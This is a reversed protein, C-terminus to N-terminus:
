LYSKGWSLESVLKPKDLVIIGIDPDDATKKSEGIRLVADLIPWIAASEMNSWLGDANAGVAIRKGIMMLFYTRSGMLRVGPSIPVRSIFWPVAALFGLISLLLHAVAFFKLITYGTEQIRLLFSAHDSIVEVCNTARGKFTRQMGARLLIGFATEIGGGLWPYSLFQMNTTAWWMLPNECGPVMKPMKITAVPGDLLKELANKVWTINGTSGQSIVSSRKLALSSPVGDTMFEAKLNMNLHDFLRTQCVTVPANVFDNGGCINYGSLMTTISVSDTDNQYIYNVLGYAGALGAHLALIDPIQLLPVGAEVLDFNSKSTSCQCDTSISTSFGAGRISSRDSAADVLQPPFLYVGYPIPNASKAFEVRTSGISQSFLMEATGMASEVDPWKRDVPNGTQHYEICHLFTGDEHFETSYMYIPAFLPLVMMMIMLLWIYSIRDLLTKAGSKYALKSSFGVKDFASAQSFGCIALSYGKKRSLLYGGLVNFSDHMAQSTLEATIHMWVTMLVPCARAVSPALKLTLGGDSLMRDAVWILLANSAMSIWVFQIHIMKGSFSESIAKGHRGTQSGTSGLSGQSAYQKTVVKVLEGDDSHLSAAKSAVDEDDAPIDRLRMTSDQLKDKTFGSISVSDNDDDEGMDASSRAHHIQVEQDFHTAKPPHASSESPHVRLHSNISSRLQLSNSM